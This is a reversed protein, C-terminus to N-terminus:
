AHDAELAAEAKEARRQWRGWAGEAEVRLRHEAALRSQYEQGTEDSSPGDSLHASLESYAHEDMRDAVQALTARAEEHLHAYLDLDARLRRVEAILEKATAPNMAAIYSADAESTVDRVVYSHWMEGSFRSRGFNRLIGFLLRRPEVEWVGCDEDEPTTAANALAELRDLDLAAIPDPM